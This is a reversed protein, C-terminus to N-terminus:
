LGPAKWMSETIGKDVLALQAAYAATWRERVEQYIQHREQDPQYDREWRILSEGAEVINSYLGVGVGAVISCGLATAEKEVPVKVQKGTVDALIQCWLAGKSAGAAFVLTDTKVGTFSFIRDLNAATVIAANEELARFIEAKGCLAPDINLNLLSPAAHYWNGYRMEDSFVPLIGRAGPPVQGAIQELVTYTDIGRENAIRIEEQCFGDRFWRMVLGIFFVIGEAQSLGAVAHPNVRINMEPDTVPKSLNVMQQWFTGGLVATQGPQVVGLGVCGLQADGGGMVVPLGQPLETQKEAKASLRGIVTGPEVSRPFIDDRLGVARAMEPAWDRKALSFIGTTGANSPDTAIEGSLNALVWDSLMSVTATKEYIEPMHRKVWLLRPLAGLAFTQGSVRYFEEELKPFQEKLDRVENAARADVNACGWLEKGDTDYLVIGERMSTASVGLIDIPAVEGEQMARRICRCLLQWNNEVDFEMSNPYRSDSKHTWEEQGVAVQRGEIDFVVARGSGTGADIALVYGKNKKM